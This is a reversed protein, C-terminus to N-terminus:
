RRRKKALRRANGVVRRRAPATIAGAVEDLVSSKSRSFPTLAFRMLAANTKLWTEALAAGKETWMRTTEATDIRGRQLDAMASMMRAGAVWPALLALQASDRAITKRSTRPM